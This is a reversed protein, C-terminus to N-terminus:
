LQIQKKEDDNEIKKSLHTQQIANKLQQSHLSGTKRHEQNNYEFARYSKVLSIFLALNHVYIGHQLHCDQTLVPIPTRCNQLDAVVAVSM